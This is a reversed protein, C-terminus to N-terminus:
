IRKLLLALRADAERKADDFDGDHLLASRLQGPRGIWRGSVMMGDLADAPEAYALTRLVDTGPWFNPHSLDWTLLHAWAGPAIVGCPM